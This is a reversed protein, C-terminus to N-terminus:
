GANADQEPESLPQTKCHQRFEAVSMGFTNLFEVNLTDSDKFGFAEAVMKNTLRSKAIVTKVVELDAKKM